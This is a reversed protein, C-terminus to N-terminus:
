INGRIREFPREARELARLYCCWLEACWPCNKVGRQFVKESLGKVKLTM